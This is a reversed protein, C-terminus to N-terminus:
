EGSEWDYIEIKLEEDSIKDVLHATAEIHFVLNDNSLVWADELLDLAPKVLNDLDNRKEVLYFDLKVSCPEWVLATKRQLQPQLFRKRDPPNWVCFGLDLGEVPEMRLSEEFIKRGQM